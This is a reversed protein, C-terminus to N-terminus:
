RRTGRGQQDTYSLVARVARGVEAQTLTFTAATAGSIDTWASGEGQVQWKYTGGSSPIGDADTVNNTATLTEDEEATGTVTVEGEPDANLDPGGVAATGASAVTENNSWADTYSLVARVPFGVENATLTYTTGTAGPIDTWGGAGDGVQWQLERTDPEEGDADTVNNMATLTEGQNATGTVTVAGAPADNVNGVRESGSSVGGGGQLEVTVRLLAGVQRRGPHLDGGHRRRDAGLLGRRGLEGMAPFDSDGRVAYGIAADERPNGDLTVTTTTGSM